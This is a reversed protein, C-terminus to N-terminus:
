VLSCPALRYVEAVDGDGLDAKRSGFEGACRIGRFGSPQAVSKERQLHSDLCTVDLVSACGRLGNFLSIISM